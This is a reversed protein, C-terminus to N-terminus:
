LKWEIAREIIVGIATNWPFNAVTFGCDHCVHVYTDYKTVIYGNFYLQCNRYVENVGVEMFYIFEKDATVM